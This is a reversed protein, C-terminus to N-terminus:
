LSLDELKSILKAIREKSIHSYVTSTLQPSSHGLRKSVDDIGWGEALLYTAHSHRLTHFSGFGIKEKCWINFYRMRDATVIKGNSKTCVFDSEEYYAPYLRKRATQIEKIRELTKKLNQGFPVTRISRKTKPTGLEIDHKDLLTHKVHIIQSEMDIDKWQLGLCEGLRMGTYWAIRTPAFFAHTPPFALFIKEIEDPGFVEMDKSKKDEKARKPVHVAKAPNQSLYNFFTVALTLSRKIIGLIQELSGSSYKEEMGNVAIQINLATLKNLQFHGLAPKIINKITRRYADQSNPKLNPEVYVKMFEDLYDSYTMTAVM